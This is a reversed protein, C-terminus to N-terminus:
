AIQHEQRRQRVEAAIRRIRRLEDHAVRRQRYADLVSRNDRNTFTFGDVVNGSVNLLKRHILHHCRVCLGILLDLDTPGGDSWWITHHMELHAHHCGPAACVGQQRAIVALRQKRTALRRTRGVNLIAAQPRNDIRKGDMMPQTHTLIPTLDAGCAIYSLLEPGIPGFGALHAPPAASPTQHPEDTLATELTEADAFVGIQPAVGKDSPLGNALVSSALDDVAQVRREAGTRADDADTPASMSDLVKQLKAGATVNLFGTVHYGGDVATVQFDQKDMGKAWAKDLAEPHLALKLSRMTEFLERPECTTAVDVLWWQETELLAHGIHRLGYTFVTVHAARIAGSAAAEAVLPLQDLTAAAKVLAKAERPSMRLQLSAWASLTSAGELEYTRATEIAGLRAMKVADLADQAAQVARVCELDTATSMSRAAIRMADIVLETDM